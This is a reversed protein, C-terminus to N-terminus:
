RSTFIDAKKPRYKLFVVIKTKSPYRFSVFDTYTIGEKLYVFRMRFLQGRGCGTKKQFM